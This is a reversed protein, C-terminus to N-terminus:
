AAAMPMLVATAPEATLGRVVADVASQSTRIYLATTIPSSHGIAAQTLLLDHTRQYCSQAFTKRYSHNSVRATEIGCATCAEVLIRYAHFRAMPRGASQRSSLLARSPDQTGISDLHERIARRVGEGLPIRRGCVSRKHEGRGGKLRSRAVYIESVVDQGGWVDSWRLGLLETIRLGSACGLVLMLRDRTRGAGAFYRNLTAYEGESFPRASM